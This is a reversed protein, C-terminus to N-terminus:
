KKIQDKISELEKIFLDIDDAFISYLNEDGAKDFDRSCFVIRKCRGGLCFQLIIKNKSERVAEFHKTKALVDKFQRIERDIRAREAKLEELTM